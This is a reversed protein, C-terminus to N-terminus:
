RMRKGRGDEEEVIELYKEKGERGAGYPKHKCASYMYAHLATVCKLAHTKHPPFLQSVIVSLRPCKEEKAKNFCSSIYLNHSKQARQEYEKGNM